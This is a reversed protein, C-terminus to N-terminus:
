EDYGGRLKRLDLRAYIINELNFIIWNGIQIRGYFEPLEIIRNKHLLVFMKNFQNRVIWMSNIGTEEIWRIILPHSEHLVAGVNIRKDVSCFISLNSWGTTIGSVEVIDSAGNNSKLHPERAFRIPMKSTPILENMRKVVKREFDNGRIRSNSGVTSWDM